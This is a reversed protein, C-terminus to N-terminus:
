PLPPWAIGRTLDDAGVGLLASAEADVYHDGDRQFCRVSRSPPDAVIIEEVGHGAYFAFKAYTEDDPSVVEVVIAATPAWVQTPFSRHYGQDPVRYDNPGGLNFPGTPVLGAVRAHPDLLVALAHDVYGHSPHAPPAMHYTGEWVADYTDLGM